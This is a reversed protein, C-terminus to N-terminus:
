FPIVSHKVDGKRYTKPRPPPAEELDFEEIAEAKLAEKEELLRDLENVEEEFNEEGEGEKSFTKKGKMPSSSPAEKPASLRRQYEVVLKQHYEMLKQDQEMLQQYQEARRQYPEMLRLNEEMAKQHVEKSQRYEQMRAQHLALREENYRALDAEPDSQFLSCGMLSLSLCMGYVLLFIRM